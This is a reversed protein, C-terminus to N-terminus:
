KCWQCIFELDALKIIDGAHLDYLEGSKLREGNRYTGNISNMDVVVVKGHIDDVRAHIRSIRNDEICVDVESVARGIISPIKEIRHVPANTDGMPILTLTKKSIKGFDATLNLMPCTEDLSNESRFFEYVETYNNKQHKEKNREKKKISKKPKNCYGLLKRKLFKKIFTEKQTFHSTEEIQVDEPIRIMETPIMDNKELQLINELEEISCGNGHVKEYFTYAWLVAREDGYDVYNLWEESLKEMQKWFDQQYGPIYVYSWGDQEEYIHEMELVLNSPDLLYEDIMHMIHVLTKVLTEIQTCQIRGNMLKQLFNKRYELPYVLYVEGDNEIEYFNLLGSIKDKYLIVEEFKEGCTGERDVWLYNGKLDNEIHYERNM